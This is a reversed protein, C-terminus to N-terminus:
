NIIREADDANMLETAIVALDDCDDDRGYDHDDDNFIFYFM